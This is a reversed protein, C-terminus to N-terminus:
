YNFYELRLLLRVDWGGGFKSIQVQVYEEFTKNYPSKLKTM